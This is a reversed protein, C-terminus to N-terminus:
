QKQVLLWTLWALAATAASLFVTAFALVATWRMLSRANTTAAESWSESSQTFKDISTAIVIASRANAVAVQQEGSAHTSAPFKADLMEAQQRLAEIDSNTV